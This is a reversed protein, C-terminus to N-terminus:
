LALWVLLLALMVAVVQVALVALALIEKHVVVVVAM